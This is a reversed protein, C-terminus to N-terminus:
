EDKELLSVEKPCVKKLSELTLKIKDGLDSKGKKLLIILRQYEGDCFKEKNAQRINQSQDLSEQIKIPSNSNGSLVGCTCPGSVDCRTTKEDKSTRQFIASCSSPCNLKERCRKEANYDAEGCNSGSAYVGDVDVHGCSLLQKDAPKEVPKLDLDLLVQQTPFFLGMFLSKIWMGIEEVFTLEAEPLPLLEEGGKQRLLVLLKDGYPGTIQIQLPKGPLEEKNIKAVLYEEENKTATFTLIKGNSEVTFQAQDLKDPNDFRLALTKEVFVKPQCMVPGQQQTKSWILKPEGAPIVIPLTSSLSDITWKGSELNLDEIAGKEDAKVVFQQKDNYVSIQENPNFGRLKLPGYTTQPQCMVKELPKKPLACTCDAKCDYGTGFSKLCDLDPDSKATDCQEQMGYGNPDQIIGDGCFTKQVPPQEAKCEGAYLVQMGFEKALCSNGYTVGDVGCVPQYVDPCTPTPPKPPLECAWQKNQSSWFCLEPQSACSDCSTPFESCDASCSFRDESDGNCFGDGCESVPIKKYYCNCNFDCSVSYGKKELDCIGLDGGDCQETKGNSNPAQRIGDGCFGQPQQPPLAPCDALCNGSFYEDETCSGDGCYNAPPPTPPQSQPPANGGSGGISPNTCHNNVCNFGPDCDWQGECLKGEQAYVIVLSLLFLIGIGLLKFKNM